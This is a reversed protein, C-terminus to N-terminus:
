NTEMFPLLDKVCDIVMPTGCPEMRSGRSKRVQTLSRWLVVEQFGRSKASLVQKIALLGKM